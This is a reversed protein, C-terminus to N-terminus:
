PQQQAHSLTWELIEASLRDSAQGFAEVVSEVSPDASPQRVEFRHNALTRQDNRNVLRADLTIVVVPKGDIYVAQFARLDSHLSLDAYLNVDENSVSPMRGDRQFAEILRDRLLAPAADSWRASGYASIENGQPVVAIRQSALIRSAQPTNIRLAQQITPESAQQLTPSTPLLFIRLTESEPLVSCASLATILGFLALRRMSSHRLSM